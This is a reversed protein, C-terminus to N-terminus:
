LLASPECVGAQPLARLVPIQPCHANACNSAHICAHMCGYSPPFHQCQWHSSHTHTAPQRIPPNQSLLRPGVPRERERGPRPDQTAGVWRARKSFVGDAEEVTCRTVLSESRDAGCPAAIVYGGLCFSRFLAGALVKLEQAGFKQTEPAQPFQFKLQHHAWVSVNRRGLIRWNPDALREWGGM